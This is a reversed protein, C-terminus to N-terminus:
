HGHPFPLAAARGPDPRNWTEVIKSSSTHHIPKEQFYIEGRRPRLIGSLTMLTTSKGAGNSGVMAVMEKENVELSVNRLAQLDGYFVEIGKVKLM